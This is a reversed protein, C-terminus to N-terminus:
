IRRKLFNEQDSRLLDPRIDLWGFREFFWNVVELSIEASNAVLENSPGVWSRGLKNESTAYYGHWFRQADMTLVFGRIGKLEITITITGHYISKQSLRAAFEFIETVTYIFNIISIFGPVKSWDIDKMRGLHKKTDAELKNRWEQESAERVTFLHIFQGSQYLRWYEKHGWFDSWSAVWNLGQDREIQRNSLHPYDWGRLSVKAKEIQEFCEKLSPILEPEYKEPRLNVRWHPAHLIQDRLSITM